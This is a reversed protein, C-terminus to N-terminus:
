LQVTDMEERDRESISDEPIFPQAILAGLDLKTLIEDYSTKDLYGGVYPLNTNLYTVCNGRHDRLQQLLRQTECNGDVCACFATIITNNDVGNRINSVIDIFDDKLFNSVVDEKTLFKKKDFATNLANWDNRFKEKKRTWTFDDLEEAWHKAVTSCLKQFGPDIVNLDREACCCHALILSFFTSVDLM